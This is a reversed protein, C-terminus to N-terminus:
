MLKENVLKSFEDDSMALPNFDPEKVKPTAAKPSSAARKKDKVEPSPTASRVPPVVVQKTTHPVGNQNVLHNFGGRANIADGVQQYAQIDSMGGLRGFVREREVEASILDYIGTAMHTNIVKLLQPSDAIAQKSHADWKNSVLSITKSYTPTDQIEDLVQDLEIERDDVAYTKPAYEKAQEVDVDLPDIGSDKMLKSIAAPDKKSLDILFGIKEESLLDNNELVKMLKLNPKLAAMKKNYNAGMQMLAVADDVSAIKIEKGNARFPTFLRDYVAKYDPETNEEQKAEELVPEKPTPDNQTGEQGAEAVTDGVEDGGEEDDAEDSEPQAEDEEAAAELEPEEQEAVEEQEVVPTLTFSELPANIFDEDSMGLADSVQHVESM